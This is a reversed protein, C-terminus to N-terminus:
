GQVVAHTKKGHHTSGSPGAGAANLFDRLVCFEGYTIAYRSKVKVRVFYKLLVRLDAYM